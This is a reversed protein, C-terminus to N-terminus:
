ECNIFQKLLQVSSYGYPMQPNAALNPDNPLGLPSQDMSPNESILDKVSPSPKKASLGHFLCSLVVAVAYNFPFTLNSFSLFKIRKHIYIYTHKYKKRFYPLFFELYIFECFSELPLLSQVKNWTFMHYGRAGGFFRKKSGYDMFWISVKGFGILTLSKLPGRSALRGLGYGVCLNPM